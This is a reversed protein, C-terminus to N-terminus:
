KETTKKGKVMAFKVLRLANEAEKSLGSKKKRPRGETPRPFPFFTKTPLARWFLSLKKKGVDLVKDFKFYGM